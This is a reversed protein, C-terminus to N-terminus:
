SSASVLPGDLRCALFVYRSVNRYPERRRPSSLAWVLRLLWPERGLRRAEEWLSRVEVPEWGEGKGLTLGEAEGEGLPLWVAEWGGLTSRPGQSFPLM